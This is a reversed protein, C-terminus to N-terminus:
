AVIGLRAKPRSGCITKEDAGSTDRHARCDNRGQRSSRATLAQTYHPNAELDEIRHILSDLDNAIIAAATSARAAEYDPKGM